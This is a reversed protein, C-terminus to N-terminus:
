AGLYSFASNNLITILSNFCKLVIIRYKTARGLELIRREVMTSDVNDVVKHKAIVKIACTIQTKKCEALLVKGFAGEGLVKLLDFDQLSRKSKTQMIKQYLAGCAIRGKLSNLSEERSISTDELTQVFQAFSRLIDTDEDKLITTM